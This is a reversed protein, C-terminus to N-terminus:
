TRRVLALSAFTYDFVQPGHYAWDVEGFQRFGYPQLTDLIGKWADPRHYTLTTSDHRDGTYIIRRRMWSFHHPDEVDLAHREHDCADMTLFLLGGPAVLCGLHYLFQDLDEVHELVSLCFVARGLCAHQRLYAALDLGHSEAPDIVVTQYPDLMWYFPSGSGGVDYTLGGLGGTTTGVNWQAHARLALAYEWRRMPHQTLAKEFYTDVVQLEEALEAFDAPDLTKTLPLSM